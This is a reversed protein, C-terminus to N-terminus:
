AQKPPVVLVPWHAEQLLTQAVSGLVFRRFRKRGHSGVIVFQADNADAADRILDIPDGEAAVVKVTLGDARLREATQTTLTQAQSMSAQAQLRLMSEYDGALSLDMPVRPIPEFAHVLVVDAGLQKALQHGMAVAGESADSMDVAIVIPGSM